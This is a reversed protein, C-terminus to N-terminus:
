DPPYGFKEVWPKLIPLVPALQEAYNRWQGAAGDYLGRRVQAASASRRDIAQAVGGFDRMGPNWDLGVFACIGRVASDFDTVLDEYRHVRLDLPLIERYREALEMTAAYFRACDELSHFEFSYPTPSFRRRYCSFVVDRPDRVAFLIKASPFLRAILPLRLVNFPMKDIFAKGKVSLGAQRVSSWYRARWREADSGRLSELRDLGEDSLLFERAPETLFEIEDMGIVGAHTALVTELLTTGSRMFGLLFIHTAAADSRAATPPVAPWTESKSFYAQLRAVDDRVRARDFRPLYVARRGGNSATYLSFASKRLGHRDFADGAFGLAFSTEASPAHSNKDLLPRLRTEAVSTSGEEIDCIALAILALPHDAVLETARVGHSRAGEFDDLLASVLALCAVADAHGGDREVARRYSAAARELLGLQQLVNGRNFDVAPMDSVKAQASDFFGLAEHFHEQQKLALGLAHELAAAQRPDRIGLALTQRLLHEAEKPRDLACLEGALTQKALLYNPQVRLADRCSKEASAHDNAASLALALNLHAEAFNPQLALAMRFESIAEGTRGATKLLNGLNHHVHAQSPEIALSRRYMEEAEALRGQARRVLGMLQLAGANASAADMLPALVEEAKRLENRNLHGLARDLATKDDLRGAARTTQTMRM